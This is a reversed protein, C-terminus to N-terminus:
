LTARGSRLAFHQAPHTWQRERCTNGSILVLMRIHADARREVERGQVAHPAEGGGPIRLLPRQVDEDVVGAGVVVLLLVRRFPDADCRLNPDKESGRVSYQIGRIQGQCAQKLM